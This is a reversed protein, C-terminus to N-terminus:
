SIFYALVQTPKKKLYPFKPTLSITYLAVRVMIEAIDLGDTKNTLFVPTGPLNGFFKKMHHQMSYLKGDTPNSSVRKYHHYVSIAHTATFRVVM